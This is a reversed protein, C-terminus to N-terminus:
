RYKGSKTIYFVPAAALARGVDDDEPHWKLLQIFSSGYRISAKYADKVVLNKYYYRVKSYTSTCSVWFTM